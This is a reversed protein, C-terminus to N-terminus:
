KNVTLPECDSSSGNYNIDGGYVARFSYSGAALPGESSSPHAISSVLAVSGAPTGNGDCTNNSYFTFDVTGTPAIPLPQWDPNVEQASNTTLRVQGRGDPNM